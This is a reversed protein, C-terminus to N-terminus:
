PHRLVIEFPLKGTDFFGFNDIQKPIVNYSGGVTGLYCIKKQEDYVFATCTTPNPQCFGACERAALVESGVTSSSFSYNFIAFKLM